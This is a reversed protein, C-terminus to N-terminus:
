SVQARDIQWSRLCRQLLEGIPTQNLTCRNPWLRVFVNKPRGRVSIGAQIEAFIVRLRERDRQSIHNELLRYVALRDDSANTEFRVRRRGETVPYALEIAKLRAALMGEPLPFDMREKLRDLDYRANLSSPDFDVHLVAQSFAALLATVKSLARQRAKLLLSGDGPYYAVIVRSAPHIRHPRHEGAESFAELIRLRDSVYGVFVHCEPDTLRYSHSACYRGTGEHARFFGTIAQEFSRRATRHDDIGIGPAARANQWSEVEQVEEHFFVEQFVDPHRVLFWLAQAAEGPILDAPLDREACADILSYIGGRHALENVQALELEIEAQKEPPLMTLAERWAAEIDGEITSNSRVAFSIGRSACYESFPETGVLARLTRNLLFRRRLM